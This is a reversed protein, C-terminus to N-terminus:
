KALRRKMAFAKGGRMAREDKNIDIILRVRSAMQPNIQPLRETLDKHVTTKSVGFIKATDRINTRRSIMYKAEELTREEIYEKLLSKM